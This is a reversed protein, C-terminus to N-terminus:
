CPVAVAGNGLSDAAGRLNASDSIRHHTGGQV